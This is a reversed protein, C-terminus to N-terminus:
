TAWLVKLKEKSQCNPQLEGYLQYRKLVINANSEFYQRQVIWTALDDGRVILLCTEAGVAEIMGGVKCFISAILSLVNDDIILVELV